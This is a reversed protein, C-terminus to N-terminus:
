SPWSRMIMLAKIPLYTPLLPPPSPKGPYAPARWPKKNLAVAHATASGLLSSASPQHRPLNPVRAKTSQLIAATYSCTTPADKLYKPPIRPLLALETAEPTRGQSSRLPTAVRFIHTDVALVPEGLPWTSSSTPPKAASAPSPWSNKAHAPSKAAM